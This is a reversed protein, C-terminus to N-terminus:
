AAATVLTEERFVGRLVHFSFLYFSPFFLIFSHSMERYHWTKMWCRSNRIFNNYVYSWIYALWFLSEPRIYKASKASDRGEGGDGERKKNPM